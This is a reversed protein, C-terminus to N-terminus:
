SILFKLLNIFWSVINMKAISEIKESLENIIKSDDRGINQVQANLSEIQKKLHEIMSENTEEQSNLTLVPVDADKLKAGSESPKKAEIQFNNHTQNNNAANTNKARHKLKIDRLKKSNKMNTDIIISNTNLESVPRGTKLARVEGGPEDSYISDILNSGSSTAKHEEHTNKNLETQSKSKLPRKVLPTANSGNLNHNSEMSSSKQVSSNVTTPETTRCKNNAIRFNNVKKANSHAFFRKSASRFSRFYQSKLLQNPPQFSTINESKIPESKDAVSPVVPSMKINAEVETQDFLTYPRIKHQHKAEDLGLRSSFCSTLYMQQREREREEKESSLFVLFKDFNKIGEVNLSQSNHSSTSKKILLYDGEVLNNQSITSSHLSTTSHKDQSDAQKAHSAAEEEEALTTEGFVKSKISGM